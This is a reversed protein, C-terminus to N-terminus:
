RVPKRAVFRITTPLCALVLAVMPRISRYRACRIVARWPLVILRGLWLFPREAISVDLRNALLLHGRIVHYEYFMGGETSSGVGAHRLFANAVAHPQLGRRRLRWTLEVDEGYMFFAEDFIPAEALAADLLLCAGSLYNFSGPLRTKTILGTYRQYWLIREREANIMSIPAVAGANPYECLERVLAAVMGPDAKADNNILLYFRQPDEREFTSLALNVGAAFGLNQSNSLLRAPFDLRAQLSELTKALKESARRDGCNDVVMAAGISQGRLSELCRATKDAGFYDLVVVGISQKRHMTLEDRGASSNCMRWVRAEEQSRDTMAVSDRTLSDFRAGSEGSNVM